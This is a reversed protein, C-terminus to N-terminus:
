DVYRLRMVCEKFDHVRFYVLVYEMLHLGTINLNNSVISGLTHFLIDRADQMTDTIGFLRYAANNLYRELKAFDHRESKVKEYACCYDESTVSNSMNKLKVIVEKMVANIDYSM